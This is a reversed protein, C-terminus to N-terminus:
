YVNFLLLISFSVAMMTKSDSAELTRRSTNRKSTRCAGIPQHRTLDRCCESQGRGVQRKMELRERLRAQQRHRLFPAELAVAGVHREHSLQQGIESGFATATVGLSAQARM